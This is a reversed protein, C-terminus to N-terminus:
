FDMWLGVVWTNNDSAKINPASPANPFNFHSLIFPSQNNAVVQYVNYQLIFRFNLWPVYDLEFVEYQNNPSGDGGNLAVDKSGTTRQFSVLGGYHRNWFYEGTVVLSQLSDTGTDYYTPVLQPSNQAREHIFHGMFGFINHQGNYQYQWDVSLDTYRNAAGPFVTQLPTVGQAAGQAAQAPSVYGNAPIWNVIM